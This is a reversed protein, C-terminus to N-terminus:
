FQTFAVWIIEGFQQAQFQQFVISIVSIIDRSVLAIRISLVVHEQLDFTVDSWCNSEFLHRCQIWLLEDHMVSFASTFWNEHKLTRADFM